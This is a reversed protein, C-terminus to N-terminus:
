RKNGPRDTEQQDFPGAYPTGAVTGSVEGRLGTDAGLRDHTGSFRSAQGQPDGPQPDARLTVQVPPQVNTLTLTISEAPIPAAKRATGDLLYVTARKEKRDVTVETHYQEVGWEALVGGHPGKDPHGEEGGRAPGSPAGTGGPDRGSGCGASLWAAVAVLAACGARRVLKHM